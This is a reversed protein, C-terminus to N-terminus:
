IPTHKKIFNDLGFIRNFVGDVANSMALFSGLLASCFTLAMLMKIQFEGMGLLLNPTDLVLPFLRGLFIGVTVPACFKLVTKFGFILPLFIAIGMDKGEVEKPTKSM